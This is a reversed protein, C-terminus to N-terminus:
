EKDELLSNLIPIMPYSRGIVPLAKLSAVSAADLDGDEIVDSPIRTLGGLANLASAGAPMSILGRGQSFKDQNFTLSDTGLLYSVPDYAMVAPGTISGWQIAGKILDTPSMDDLRGNVAERAGYALAATGTSYLLSMVAASDAHRMNRLLQKQGAVVTFTKLSMLLSGVQGYWWNVGEGKQQQQVTNTVHKKIALAADEADIPDWREYNMNTVNGDKDFEITGDDIYRKLTAAFTDDVGMDRIRSLNKGDRVSRVMFDQGALANVAQMMENVKYYGSVYGLGRMGKDMMRDLGHLFAGADRLDVDDNSISRMVLRHDGTYVGISRLSKLVEPDKGKLMEPVTQKAYKTWSKLGVVGMGVGIEATQTIGLTGLFSLAALKNLRGAVPGSGGAFAGDAFYSFIDDVRKAAGEANTGAARMQEVMADKLSPLDNKQFGKRALAAHNAASRYYREQLAMADNEVLDMLRYQTGPIQTRLDINLRGKAFGVKGRDPNVGFVKEVTAMAQEPSMGPANDMLAQAMFSKGDASVAGFDGFASGVDKSRGRRLIAKGLVTAMGMDIDSARTIGQVLGDLVRATGVEREIKAIKDGRWDRRLWGSNFEVDEMGRVAPQGDLGKTYNLMKQNARDLNDALEKVSPHVNPMSQKEHYRTEMEYMVDRMFQLEVKNNVHGEILSHNNDKLWRHYLPVYSPVVEAVVEHRMHESLSGGARRNKAAGIASDLMQYAYYQAVPSGSNMMWDYDNEFITKNIGEHIRKGLQQVPNKGWTNQVTDLEEMVNPNERFFGKAVDDWQATAPSVAVEIEPTLQAAGLSGSQKVTRTYTPVHDPNLSRMIGEKIMSPSYFDGGNEHRLIAAVARASTDLDTLDIAQNPAIGLDKSVAKIYADTNNNDARPAYTSIIEQITDVGRKGYNTLLKHVARIGDEPSQFQAFRGEPEVGKQGEWNNAPNFEINGPNNNRVGRPTLGRDGTVPAQARERRVTKALEVTDSVSHMNIDYDKSRPLASGIGVGIGSAMLAAGFVDGGDISPRLEANIAETAAVSTTTAAATNAINGMRTTAFTASARAAEAAQETLKGAKVLKDIKALKRATNIVGFAGFSVAADVDLMSAAFMPVTGRGFGAAEIFRMSEMESKAYDIQIDRAQASGAELAADWMDQPLGSAKLADMTEKMQEPKNRPDYEPDDMFLSRDKIERYIAPGINLSASTHLASQGAVEMGSMGDFQKEKDVAGQEAEVASMGEVTQAAKVADARRQEIGEDIADSVPGLGPLINTM